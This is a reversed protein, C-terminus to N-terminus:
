WSVPRTPPYSSPPRLCALLGGFRGRRTLRELRYRWNKRSLLNRVVSANLRSQSASIARHRWPYNQVFGPRQCIWMLTTSFSPLISAVCGIVYAIILVVFCFPSLFLSKDCCFFKSKGKESQVAAAGTYAIYTFRKLCSPIRKPRPHKADGITLDSQKACGAIDLRTSFHLWGAKQCCASALISCLPYPYPEALKTRSCGGYNGRLRWHEHSGNCLRVEGRLRTNTAFRTRKRWKTGFRCYHM